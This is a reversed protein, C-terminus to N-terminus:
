PNAIEAAQEKQIKEERLAKDREKQIKRLIKDLRREKGKSLQLKKIYVRNSKETAM